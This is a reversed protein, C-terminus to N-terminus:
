AKNVLTLNTSFTHLVKLVNIPGDLITRKNDRYINKANKQKPQRVRKKQTGYQGFQVM